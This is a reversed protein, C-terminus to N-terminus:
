LNCGAVCKTVGSKDATQETDHEANQWEFESDILSILFYSHFFTFKKKDQYCFFFEIV